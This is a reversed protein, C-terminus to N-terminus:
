ILFNGQKEPDVLTIAFSQKQWDFRPRRYDAEFFPFSLAAM